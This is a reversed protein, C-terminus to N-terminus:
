PAADTNQPASLLKALATLAARVPPDHRGDHHSVLWERHALAEIDQSVRTLGPVLGAAFTPLVIRGLGQQALQAALRPDNAEATIEAGHHKRTWHASPTPRAADGALIWGRCGADRAFAAYRIQRMPQAALWAQEPRRNRLGIDVERRAIDLRAEAKVFVPQWPAEADWVRGLRAAIWLATWSGASVRVPRAEAQGAAWSDIAEAGRQLSRAQPQLARGEATLAYGRAGRHFLRKGLATELRQMRRSLTPQSVGTARAAGGLGGADAVALFLALDDWSIKM